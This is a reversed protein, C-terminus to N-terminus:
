FHQRVPKFIAPDNVFMRVSPDAELLLWLRFTSWNYFRLRRGLKPSFAEIQRAGKPRPIEVPQIDTYFAEM